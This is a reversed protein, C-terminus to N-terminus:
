SRRGAFTSISALNARCEEQYEHEAEAVVALRETAVAIQELREIVIAVQAFCCMVFAGFVVPIGIQLLPSM